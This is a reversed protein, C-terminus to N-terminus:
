AKDEFEIVPVQVEGDACESSAELAVKARCRVAAQVDPLVAALAEISGPASRLELRTVPRGVSVGADSKRRHIAGLARKAMAFSADFRPSAVAAFEQRRPWPARHLSGATYGFTWSACEETIYPMAPAFLRLLVHLGIRLTAVASAQESIAAEARPVTATATPSTANAATADAGHSAPGRARVKLLELTSDTFSQWFFSESLELARAYAFDDFAAQVADVLTGLEAVFSRDLETAICPGLEAFPNDADIPPCPVPEFAQEAAGNKRPADRQSLTSSGQPDGDSYASASYQHVLKSANYLKTVLRRGVKLVQEDFATDSGLRASAAWYRLADAGYREILQVPATASNGKSKSMKKKDPDLVWGSIVVHKWPVSDEHLMAKALTYFAWTRIIEHSQPRMDAPFLKAHRAPETFAQSAIQPTLSSTFWTDFVDSEGIFGGPRNRQEENYGPPVASMPDIPLSQADAVIPADFRTQGARDLPYWLPFPVGFYRQRSICWDLALNETWTDFRVRMHAPHWHVEAGKRLLAEKKDLLRVFWQRTPILELPRDGKEFYKVQQHTPIPDGQLPAGRGTASGKPQRLLEVIAKRAGHVTKGALEAYFRNALEPRLSVFPGPGATGTFRLELLRGQRGLIQRLPLKQERWWVVDTADGFTCVMLIGTGKEPDALESPFIPVPAHFLPTLARKGFLNRYRADDPHAAVGVCAALLEPRTTAIVFRGDPSQPDVGEVAFELRHYAGEKPRDELEAQAVATQFDVDWLTPSERAYVHGKAHLDLFSLQATRRCHVNMTTYQQTWDVSLGLRRWLALYAQEDHATVQECLEIFNRRSVTRPSSKRTKASAEQLELGHEYAAEPDCRIHFHNQVRRETPLGNDDWGMPYFVNRGAMRRQRALIDTHTYSFVHGLHLSGSVTPPPTDIVFNQSRGCGPDYRYTAAKEWREAWHTEAQASDFHKPLASGPTQTAPDTPRPTSPSSVRTMYGLWLM